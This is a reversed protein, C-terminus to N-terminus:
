LDSDKIIHIRRNTLLYKKVNAFIIMQLPLNKKVIVSKILVIVRPYLVIDPADFVGLSDPRPMRCLFTGVECRLSSPHRRILSLWILRATRSENRNEFM